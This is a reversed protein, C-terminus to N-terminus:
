LDIKDSMYNMGERYDEDVSITGNAYKELYALLNLAQKIDMPRDNYSFDIYDNENGYGDGDASFATMEIVDTYKGNSIKKKVEDLVDLIYKRYANAKERALDRPNLVKNMIETPKKM